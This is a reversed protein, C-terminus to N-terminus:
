FGRYFFLRFGGDYFELGFFGVNGICYFGWRLFRGMRGVLWSGFVMRERGLGLFGM